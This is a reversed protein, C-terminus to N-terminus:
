VSDGTGLEFVEFGFNEGLLNNNGAEIAEDRSAFFEVTDPDVGALPLAPIDESPHNLMVFFM